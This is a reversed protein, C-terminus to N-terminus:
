FPLEEPKIDGFRVGLQSDTNTLNHHNIVHTIFKGRAEKSSKANTFYEVKTIIKYRKM